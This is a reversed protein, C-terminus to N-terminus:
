VEFQGSLVLLESMLSIVNFLYDFVNLWVIISIIIVTSIQIDFLDPAMCCALLWLCQLNLWIITMIVASDADFYYCLDM